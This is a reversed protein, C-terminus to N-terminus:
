SNSCTPTSCLCLLAFCREIWEDCDWGGGERAGVSRGVWRGCAASRRKSMTWRRRRSWGLGWSMAGPGGAPRWWWASAMSATLCACRSSRPRPPRRRRPSGDFLPRCYLSSCALVAATIAQSHTVLLIAATVSSGFQFCCDDDVATAATAAAAGVQMYPLSINFTDAATSYWVVRVNTIFFVGLNDAEGGLNWM